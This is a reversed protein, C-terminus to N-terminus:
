ILKLAYKDPPTGKAALADFPAQLQESFYIAGHREFQRAARSM